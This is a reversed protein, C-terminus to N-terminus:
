LSKNLKIKVQNNKYSLVKGIHIGKHKVSYDTTVNKNSDEFLYGATTERSFSTYLDDLLEELKRFYHTNQM